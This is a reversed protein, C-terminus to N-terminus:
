QNGGTFASILSAAKGLVSALQGHDLQDMAGMISSHADATATQVTQQVQAQTNAVNQEVQAAEQQVNGTLSSVLKGLDFGQAIGEGKAQINEGANQVDQVAQIAAQQVNGAAQQVGGTLSNALGALDFGKLLGEGKSALNEITSKFEDPIQVSGLVSDIMGKTNDDHNAHGNLASIGASLLTKFADQTNAM